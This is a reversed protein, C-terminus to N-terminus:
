HDILASVLMMNRPTYYHYHNYMRSIPLVVPVQDYTSDDCQGYSVDSGIDYKM